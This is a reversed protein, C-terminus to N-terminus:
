RKREAHYLEVEEGDLTIIFFISDYNWYMSEDPSHEKVDILAISDILFEIDVWGEQVFGEFSLSKRGVLKQGNDFSFSDRKEFVGNSSLLTYSVEVKGNRSKGVGMGKATENFFTASDTSPTIILEHKGAKPIKLSFKWGLKRVPAYPSLGAIAIADSLILKSQGGASVVKRNRINLMKGTGKQSCIEYGSKYVIKYLTGNGVATNFQAIAKKGNDIASNAQEVFTRQKESLAKFERSNTALPFDKGIIVNTLEDQACVLVQRIKDHADGDSQYSALRNTIEKIEMTIKQIDKGLGQRMQNIAVTKAGWDPLAREAEAVATEAKRVLGKAMAPVKEMSKVFAKADRRLKEVEEVGIPGELRDPNWEALGDRLAKAYAEVPEVTVDLVQAVSRKGVDNWNAIGERVQRDMAELEKAADVLSKRTKLSVLNGNDRFLVTMSEILADMSKRADALERETANGVRQTDEMISDVEKRTLSAKDLLEKAFRLRDVRLARADNEMSSIKEVLGNVNRVATKGVEVADMANSIATEAKNSWESLSVRMRAMYAYSKNFRELAEATTTAGPRLQAQLMKLEGLCQELNSAAIKAAESKSSSLAQRLGDVAAEVVNSAVSIDRTAVGWQVAVAASEGKLREARGQDENVYITTDLDLARVERADVRFAGMDGLGNLAEQVRRDACADVEALLKAVAAEGERIVASLKERRATFQRMWVGYAFYSVVAAMVVVLAVMCCRERRKDDILRSMKSKM